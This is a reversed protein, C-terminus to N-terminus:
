FGRHFAVSCQWHRATTSFAITSKVLIRNEFLFNRSIAIFDMEAVGHTKLINFHNAKLLKPGTNNTFTCSFCYMHLLFFSIKYSCFHWLFLILWEAPNIGSGNLWSWELINESHGSFAVHCFQQPHISQSQLRWEHDVPKHDQPVMIQSRYSTVLTSVHKVNKSHRRM